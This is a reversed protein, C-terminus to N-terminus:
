NQDNKLLVRRGNFVGIAYADEESLGDFALKLDNLPNRLPFDSAFLVRDAGVLDVLRSVCRKGYLLPGAATDFLLNPTARRIEPMQLFFPVGGGLHAGIMTVKPFETACMLLSYPTIGGTKGPYTHGFPESTHWLLPVDNDDALEYLRKAESDLPDWGQGGPRLEGFGRAGYQLLRKAEDFWNSWSLNINVFPIVAPYEDAVALIYDNQERADSENLFGFGATVAGVFFEGDIVGLLDIGDALRAAPNSYLEAFGKDSEVLQSRRKCQSPPFIHTHADIVGKVQNM